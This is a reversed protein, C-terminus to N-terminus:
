NSNVQVLWHQYNIGQSAPRQRPQATPNQSPLQSMSGGLNYHLSSRGGGGNSTTTGGKSKRLMVPADGDM